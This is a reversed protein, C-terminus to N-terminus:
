KMLLIKQTQVVPRADDFHKVVLRAFYVGSSLREGDFPAAHYGSTMMGDVLTSVERGLVDYVKLTVNADAALQYNITTSPNFPNPYNGVIADASPMNLGFADINPQSKYSSMEGTAPDVYTELSHEALSLEFAMSNRAQVEVDNLVAVATNVDNEHYLSIYFNNLKARASLVTNPNENAVVANVQKASAIDGQNLFLYALLLKHGKDAEKPLSLFFNVIDTATETSYCNFLYVYAAQNDPHQNIYSLFFDKAPGYNKQALLRRGVLLPDGQTSSTQRYVSPSRLQIPPQRNEASPVEEYNLYLTVDDAKKYPLSINAWPDSGM